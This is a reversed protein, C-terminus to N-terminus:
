QTEDTSQDNTKRVVIITVIAIIAALGLGLLIVLTPSIASYSAEDSADTTASATTPENSDAVNQETKTPTPEQKETKSSTITFTSEGSIPHGDSSVVRWVMKYKGAPPDDPLASTITQGAIVPEDVSVDEDGSTVQVESGMQQLEGSFDLKIEKPAEGLTAGDEPTSATIEDHAAAPAPMMLGLALLLMALMGASVWSVM